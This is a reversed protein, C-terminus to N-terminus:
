QNNEQRLWHHVRVMFVLVGIIVHALHTYHPVDLCFFCVSTITMIFEIAIAIDRSHRRVYDSIASAVDVIFIKCARTWAKTSEAVNQGYARVIKTFAKRYDIM